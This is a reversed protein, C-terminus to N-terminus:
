GTVECLVQRVLNETVPVPNTSCCPDDLTAKVIQQTLKGVQQPTIGAQALTAPLELERRLAILKNKLNRVSMVEGSGSIGAARAIAAYEAGAASQNVNVVAPLLIANLRGHPLHLLGGMGHAMAHCLGLGAHNFAMAAMCSAEHMQLRVATQGRYSRPLAYFASAFADRALTGTIRGGNTAACAELAHALVDFGTDAILKAPLKQLLSTMRATQKAGSRM